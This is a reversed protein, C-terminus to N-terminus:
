VPGHWVVSSEWRMRPMQMQYTYKEKGLYKEINRETVQVRKKDHEYIERAAKRCINGIEREMQRVGAERTYNQAIKWIVGKSITLQEKTVDM